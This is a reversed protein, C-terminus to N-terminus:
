PAHGQESRQRGGHGRGGSEAAATKGRTSAGANTMAGPQRTGAEQARAGLGVRGGQESRTRPELEARDQAPM